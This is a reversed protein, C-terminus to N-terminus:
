KFDKLVEAQVEILEQLRKRYIRMHKSSLAIENEQYTITLRLDNIEDYLAKEKDATANYKAIWYERDAKLKKVLEDNDPRPRFLKM